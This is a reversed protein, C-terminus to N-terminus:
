RRGILCPQFPRLNRSDRHPYRRYYNGESAEFDDSGTSSDKKEPQTLPQRLPLSSATISHESNQRDPEDKQLGYTSPQQEQNQISIMSDDATRPEECDGHFLTSAEVM